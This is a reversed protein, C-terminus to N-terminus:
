HQGGPCIRGVGWPAYLHGNGLEPEDSIYEAIIKGFDAAYHQWHPEYVADLLLRVSREETMKIYDRHFGANHSLSLVCIQYIDKPKNWELRAGSM